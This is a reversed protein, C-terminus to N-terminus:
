TAEPSMFFLRHSCDYCLLQPTDDWDSLVIQRYTQNNNQHVNIGPKHIHGHIITKVHFADMDKIMVDTVIELQSAAKSPSNQSRNRVSMVMKKRIALPIARFILGFLKNRTIRRLWMHGTDRTCYQDGHTLLISEGHLNIVYPDDLIQMNAQKAFRQGLLFDRNGHMYFISVGCSALWALRKAISESWADLSDDGPWAHFFDGLIYLQETNTSAWETFDFFRHTIAPEDPNLHLDSIFVAKIM